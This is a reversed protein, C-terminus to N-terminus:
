GPPLMSARMTALLEDQIQAFAALQQPSLVAAARNRLRQSYQAAESDLKSSIYYRALTSDNSLSCVTYGLQLAKNRLALCRYKHGGGHQQDYMYWILLRPKALKSM